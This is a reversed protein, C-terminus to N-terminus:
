QWHKHFPSNGIFGDKNKDAAMAIARLRKRAEAPPLDEFSDADKKSGLPEM